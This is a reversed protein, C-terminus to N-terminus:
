VVVFETKLKLSYSVKPKLNIFLIMKLNKEEIITYVVM